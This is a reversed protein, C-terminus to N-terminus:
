KMLLMRRCQSGRATKLRYFYVGSSVPRGQKNTGDWIFQHIGTPLYGSHLKKVQQGATNYITLETESGFPLRFEITTAPNFPNPFNQKLVFHHILPLPPEIASIGKGLIYGNDGSVLLASGSTSGFSNLSFPYVEVPVDMQSWTLGGDVSEYLAGGEGCIYGHEQDTFVIDRLYPISNTNNNFLQTLFNWSNGGDSSYLVSGYSGLAFGHLSDRFYLKYIKPYGFGTFPMVEWSEGGDTTKYIVASDGGVFGIQDNIFFGTNLYQQQALYPSLPMQREQWSQGSDYSILYKGGNTGTIARNGYLKIFNLTKDQGVFPNPLQEWSLGGDVTKGIYGKAGSILGYLDNKFCVDNIENKEPIIKLPYSWGSGSDPSISMERGDTSFCLIRESLVTMKRLSINPWEMLPNFHAGNDTSRFFQGYEAFVQLISDYCSINVISQGAPFDLTDWSNGGNESKYLIGYDGGTFIHNKDYGAISHLSTVTFPWFATSLTWSQGFDTSKYVVGGSGSVFADGSAFGTCALLRKSLAPMLTLVTKQWTAGGDMSNYIINSDYTITFVKNEDFAFIDYLDETGFVASSLRNWKNGGDVTKFIFCNDACCYGTTESVFYIKRISGAFNEPSVDQWSNGGDTSKWLRGFNGAVFGTSDNLFHVDFWAYPDVADFQILWNSGGNNTRLIRNST